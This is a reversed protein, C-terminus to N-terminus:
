KISKPIKKLGSESWLNRKKYQHNILTIDEPVVIMSEHETLINKIYWYRIFKARPDKLELSRWSKDLVKIKKGMKFYIIRYNAYNRNDIYSIRHDYWLNNTKPVSKIEYVASYKISCDPSIDLTKTYKNRQESSLKMAGLCNNIFTTGLLEHTEDEPRRTIVEDLNFGTGLLFTNKDVNARRIKRISPLYLDFITDKSEQTFNTILVNAGKFSGSRFVVLIKSEIDDGDKYDNNVYYEYTATFAKGNKKKAIISTIKNGLSTLGYNKVSYFRDVFYTQDIIDDAKLAKHTYPLNKSVGALIPLTYISLLIGIIFINQPFNM